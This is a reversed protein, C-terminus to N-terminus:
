LHALILDNSSIILDIQFTIFILFQVASSVVEKITYSIEAGLTIGDYFKSNVPTFFTYIFCWLALDKAAKM